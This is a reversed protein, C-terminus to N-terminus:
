RTEKEWKEYRERWEDSLGYEGQNKAYLLLWGAERLAEELAITRIIMSYVLIAVGLIIIILGIM